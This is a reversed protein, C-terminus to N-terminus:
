KQNIKCLFYNYNEENFSMSTGPVETYKSGAKLYEDMTSTKSEQTERSNIKETNPLKSPIEEKKESLKNLEELNLSAFFETLTIGGGCQDLNILSKGELIQFPILKRATKNYWCMYINNDM